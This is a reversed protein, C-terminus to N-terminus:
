IYLPEGDRKEVLRSVRREYEAVPMDQLLM